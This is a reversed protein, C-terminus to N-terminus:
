AHAARAGKAVAGSHWGAAHSSSAAAARPGHAQAWRRGRSGRVLGVTYNWAGRQGAAAAVEWGAQLQEAKHPLQQGAGGIGGGDGAAEDGDGGGGRWAAWQAAAAEEVAARVLKSDAEEREWWLAGGGEAEAGGGHAPVADEAAAGAGRTGCGQGPFDGPLNADLWEAAAAVLAYVFGAGGMAGRQAACEAALHARLAAARADAADLPGLLEIVPDSAAPYGQRHWLRADLPHAARAQPLLCGTPRGRATCLAACPAPQTCRPIRDGTVGEEGRWSGNGKGWM